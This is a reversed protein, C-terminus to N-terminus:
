RDVGMNKDLLYQRVRSLDRVSRTGRDREAQIASDSAGLGGLGSDEKGGGWRRRDRAMDDLRKQSADVEAGARAAEGRPDSFYDDHINNTMPPPPKRDPAPFAQAQDPAAFAFNSSDGM